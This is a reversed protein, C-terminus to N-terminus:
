ETPLAKSNYDVYTSKDQSFSWKEIEVCEANVIYLEVDNLLACECPNLKFDAKEKNNREM